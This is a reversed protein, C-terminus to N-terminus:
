PCEGNELYCDIYHQANLEADSESIYWEDSDKILENQQYIKYIWKLNTDPDLSDTYNTIEYQYHSHKKM